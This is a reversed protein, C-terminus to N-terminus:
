TTRECSRPPIALHHDLFLVRMLLHRTSAAMHSAMSSIGQALFFPEQDPLLAIWPIIAAVVLFAIAGLVLLWTAVDRRVRRALQRLALRRNVHRPLPTFQRGAVRITSIAHRMGLRGFQRLGSAAIITLAVLPV